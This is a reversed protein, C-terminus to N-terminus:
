GNRQYSNNLEDQVVFAGEPALAVQLPQDLVRSSFSWGEPLDLRDGLTPLDAVTLSRDQILAYSQMIYVDGDPDTLEYVESGAKFAWTTTREVLDPEYARSEEAAETTALLAM